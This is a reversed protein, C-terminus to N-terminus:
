THFPLLLQCPRAAVRRRRIPILAGPCIDMSHFTRSAAPGNQHITASQRPCVPLDRTVKSFGILKKGKDYVATIVVSAWFRSGDKKLRWGEEEYKGESRAVKLEHAPKGSIIDEEPYFISFYKGIIEDASYGKLRRAGENWSIIRGKDDLM